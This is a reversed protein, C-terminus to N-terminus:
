HCNVDCLTNIETSWSNVIWSECLSHENTPESTGLDTHFEVNLVKSYLISSVWLSHDDHQKTGTFNSATLTHDKASQFWHCHEQHESICFINAQSLFMFIQCSFKVKWVLFCFTEWSSSFFNFFFVSLIIGYNKTLSEEQHKQVESTRWSFLGLTAHWLLGLNSMDQYATEYPIVPLHKFLSVPCPDESIRKCSEAEQSSFLVKTKIAEM